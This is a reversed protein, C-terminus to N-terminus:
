TLARAAREFDRWVRNEFAGFPGALLALGLGVLPDILTLLLAVAAVVLVVAAWLPLLAVALGLGLAALVAGWKLRYPRWALLGIRQRRANVRVDLM